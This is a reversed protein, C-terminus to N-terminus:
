SCSRKGYDAMVVPLSVLSVAKGLGIVVMVRHVTVFGRTTGSRNAVILSIVPFRFARPSPLRHGAPPCARTSRPNPRCAAILLSSDSRWVPPGDEPELKRRMAGTSLGGGRDVVGSGDVRVDDCKGPDTAYGGFLKLYVADLITGSPVAVGVVALMSMLSTLPNDFRGDRTIVCCGFCLGHAFWFLLRSGVRGGLFTQFVGTGGIWWRRVVGFVSWM